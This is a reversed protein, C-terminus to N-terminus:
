CPHFTSPLLIHPGARPTPSVIFSDMHLGVRLIRFRLVQLSPLVRSGSFRGHFPDVESPMYRRWTPLGPILDFSTELWRLTLRTAEAFGDQLCRCGKFIFGVGSDCESRVNITGPSALAAELDARLEHWDAAPLLVGPPPHADCLVPCRICHSHFNCLAGLWARRWVCICRACVRSPPLPSSGRQV